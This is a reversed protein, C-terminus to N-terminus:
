FSFILVKDKRTKQLSAKFSLSQQAQSQAEALPTPKTSKGSRAAKEAKKKTPVEEVAKLQGDKCGIKTGPLEEVIKDNQKRPLSGQENVQGNCNEDLYMDNDTVPDCLSDKESNREPVMFLQAPEQIISTESKNEPVNPFPHEAKDIPTLESDMNIDSM